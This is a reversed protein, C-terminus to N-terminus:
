TKVRSFQAVICLLKRSPTMSILFLGKVLLHYNGELSFSKFLQVFLHCWYRGVEVPVPSPQTGQLNELSLPLFTLDPVQSKRYGM